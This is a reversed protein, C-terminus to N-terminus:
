LNQKNVTKLFSEFAVVANEESHLELYSKKIKNSLEKAFEPNDLVRCIEEAMTALDLYPVIIGNGESLFEPAGGSNSFCVIPKALMAAELVVLPYPDERSTLLFVDMAALYEIANEVSEVLVINEKLGAKEIDHLIRPFSVDDKIVGVWLFKVPLEPRNRKIFLAVVIFLDIGKRWDSTGISGILFSNECNVKIKIRNIKGKSIKENPIYYPLNSLKSGTIKYTTKLNEKVANSPVLFHNSYQLTYALAKPTTFTKISNELEHVYTVVPCNAPQLKNLISGNTITNSFILDYKKRTFQKLTKNNVNLTPSYRLVKRKIFSVGREFLNKPLDRRTKLVLVNGVSEFEKVLPGTLGVIVDIDTNPNRRKFSKLFHILLIPAGTRSSDHSIVLLKM